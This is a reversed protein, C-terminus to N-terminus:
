AEIVCTTIPGPLLCVGILGNHFIKFGHLLILLGTQESAYYIVFSNMVGRPTALAVWQETAALKAFYRHTM